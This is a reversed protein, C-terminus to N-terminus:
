GRKERHSFKYGHIVLCRMLFGNRFFTKLAPSAHVAILHLAQEKSLSIRIIAAHFLAFVAHVEELFLPEVHVIDPLGGEAGDMGPSCVLRIKGQKVRRHM